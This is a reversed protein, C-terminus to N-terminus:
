DQKETKAYMVKWTKDKDITVCHSTEGNGWEIEVWIGYRFAKLYFKMAEEKKDFLFYDKNM